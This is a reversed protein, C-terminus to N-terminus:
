RPNRSVLIRGGDDCFLVNGRHPEQAFESAIVAGGTAGGALIEFTEGGGNGVTSHLYTYIVHYVGASYDGDLRDMTQFRVLAGYRDSIPLSISKIPTVVDAAAYIAAVPAADPLTEAGGVTVAWCGLPLLDGLQYQKPFLTM